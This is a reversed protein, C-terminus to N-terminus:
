CWEDLSTQGKDIRTLLVNKNVGLAELIRLVPPLLQNYIYYDTDIKIKNQIVYEPDEAKDKILTMGNDTIIYPIREGILVNKGRKLMKIAVMVHAEKSDYDSIDKTLKKTIILKEHNIKNNKLDEIKNRVLKISNNIGDQVNNSKLLADLVQSLTESAFDCWERRVTEIGKSVVKDDILMVYRKKATLIMRTIYNEFVLEMPKELTDNISKIIHNICKLIDDKNDDGSFEIYASDTDAYIVNCKYEKGNISLTKFEDNILNITKIIQERALKTITSALEWAYMKSTSDGTYGYFSNLLIKVAEQTADLTMYESETINDKKMESKLAMRRSLLEDLIEPIIGKQISKDIFGFNASENKYGLKDTHKDGKVLTSFCLNRTIMISPYLSKYDVSGVHSYIGPVIRDFVFAGPLDVKKKQRRVYMLRDKEKFKRLLLSEVLIGSGQSDIIDQILRGSEKSLMIFKDLLRFKRFIMMVLEADRLGYNLLEEKHSGNNWYKIMCSVDFDLKELGLIEKSIWRLDLRKLNYKKLFVNSADERRLMSLVDFVIKGTFGGVKTVTRGKSIYSRKWLTDNSLGVNINYIGLNKCRDIIYPIDFNNINYGIIVDACRLIDFFTNLMKLEDTFEYVVKHDDKYQNYDHDHYQHDNKLLLLIKDSELDYKNLSIKKNFVLSILAIPCTEPDPMVSKLPVVEIDFSCVTLFM